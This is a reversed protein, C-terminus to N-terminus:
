EYRLAEVPNLKAARYAPYLGSLCGVILAFLLGGVAMEMTVATKLPVGYLDGAISVLRSIGYGAGLGIVGGVLGIIGSEVLFTALIQGRTAGIAKMIGIERTREVVSMMMTNMIGIGGVVLSVAAIGGLIINLVTTFSGVQKLVSDATMVVFSDKERTKKLELEVREAVAQASESSDAKAFIMFVAGKNGFIDWFDELNMIVQNDDQSNGQKELIGIVRFKNGGIELTDRVGVKKSYLKEQMNWGVVVAGKENGELWRGAIPEMGQVDGMVVKLDQPHFGSVTVVRAERRFTVPYSSTQMPTADLVGRVGAVTKVDRETFLQGSPGGSPIVMIKNKGMKSFMEDAYIKLGTGISLMAIIVSIGIIIGLLTLATRFKQHYLSRLSFSFIEGDM